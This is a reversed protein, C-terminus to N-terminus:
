ILNGSLSSFISFVQLDHRTSRVPPLCFARALLFEEGNIKICYFSTECFALEIFADIKKASHPQTRSAATTKIFCSM